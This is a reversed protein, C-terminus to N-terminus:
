DGDALAAALARAFLVRPTGAVAAPEPPVCLVPTAERLLRDRQGSADARVAAAGLGGVVRARLEGAVQDAAAVVAAGREVIHAHTAAAAM